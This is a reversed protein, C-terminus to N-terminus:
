LLLTGPETGMSRARARVAPDEHHCLEKLRAVERPGLEAFLAAADLGCLLAERDVDNLLDLLGERMPRGPPHLSHGAAVGIGATSGSPDERWKCPRGLADRRSACLETLARGAAVRVDRDDSHLTCGLAEVISDDHLGWRGLASIGALQVAVEPDGLARVLVPVTTRADLRLSGLALCAWERAGASASTAARCLGSVIDRQMTAVHSGFMPSGYYLCRASREVAEADSASLGHVLGPLIGPLAHLRECLVGLAAEGVADDRELLGLLETLVPAPLDPAAKLGLVGVGRVRPEPSTLMRMCDDIPVSEPM